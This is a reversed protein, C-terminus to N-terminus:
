SIWASNDDSSVRAVFERKSLLWCLECHRGDTRSEALDGREEVVEVGRLSCM